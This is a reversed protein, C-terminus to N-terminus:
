RRSASRSRTSRTCGRRPWEWRRAWLRGVSLALLWASLGLTLAQVVLVVDRSLGVEGGGLIALFLPYGPTRGAEPALPGGPYAPTSYHGDLLSHAASLYAQSDSSTHSSVLPIILLGHVAAVLAAAGALRTFRV